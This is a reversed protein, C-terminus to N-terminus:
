KSFHGRRRGVDSKWIVVGIGPVLILFLGLGAFDSYNWVGNNDLFKSFFSVQRIGAEGPVVYAFITYGIFIAIWYAWLLTPSNRNM